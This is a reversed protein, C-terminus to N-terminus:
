EFVPYGNEGVKWKKWNEPYVGNEDKYSNLLEVFEETSKGDINVTGEEIPTAENTISASFYYCNNSTEAGIVRCCDSQISSVKGLNYSNKSTTGGIGKSKNSTAWRSIMDINGINYCNNVTAGAYNDEIMGAVSGGEINGLNYCNIIELIGAAEGVIGATHSKSSVNGLNYCDTINGAYTGALGATYGNEGFIEGINYCNKMTAEGWSGHGVIGGITSKANINAKNYCNYYSTWTGHAVIGGAYNETSIVEGTIGLNQITAHSTGGFLGANKTTNIYVNRIEYGNGEFNGMFRSEVDNAGEGIPIFGKNSNCLEILTSSATEDEIYADKTEDYRYKAKYNAYSLISKFDLTKTLVVYCDQKIENNNILKSFAVLDEICNIYYPSEETGEAEKMINGADPDIEIISQGTINGDNDIEYARKSEEFIVVFNNSGTFVSTKGDGLNNDLAQQLEDKTLEGYKNKESARVSSIGIIEKENSIETEEKAKKSNNITGNEDSLTGITIGALILLVVITVVLAILTIGSTRKM